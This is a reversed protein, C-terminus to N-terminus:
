KGFGPKALKSTPLDMAEGWYMLNGGNITQFEKAADMSSFALVSPLCCIKYDAGVLIPADMMNIGELTDHAFCWLVRTDRRQIDRMKIAFMLACHPCCLNEPNDGKEFSIMCMTTEAGTISKSCMVCSGEAAGTEMPKDLMWKEKKLPKVPPKIQIADDGAEEQVTEVTLDASNDVSDTKEIEVARSGAPKEKSSEQKKEGCSSLSLAFLLAFACILIKRARM